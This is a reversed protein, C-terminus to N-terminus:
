TQDRSTESIIYKQLHNVSCTSEDTYIFNIDNDGEYGNNNDTLPQHKGLKFNIPCCKWFHYMVKRIEIVKFDLITMDSDIPKQRWGLPHQTTLRLNVSWIPPFTQFPLNSKQGRYSM